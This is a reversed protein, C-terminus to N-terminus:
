ITGSKDCFTFKQMYKNNKNCLKPVHKTINLAINHQM